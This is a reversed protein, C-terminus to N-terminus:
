SNSANPEVHARNAMPWGLSRKRSHSLHTWLSPARSVRKEESLSSERSFADRPRHTSVLGSILEM